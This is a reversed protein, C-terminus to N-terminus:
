LWLDLNVQCGKDKRFRRSELTSGVRFFITRGSSFGLGKLLDIFFQSWGGALIIGVEIKLGDIINHQSSKSQISLKGHVKRMKHINFSYKSIDVNRYLLSLWRSSYQAYYCADAKIFRPAGTLNWLLRVMSKAGPAFTLEVRLSRVTITFIHIYNYWLSGLLPPQGCYPPSADTLLYYSGHQTENKDNLTLGM